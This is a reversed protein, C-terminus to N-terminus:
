HGAARVSLASHRGARPRAHAIKGDVKERRKRVDDEPTIRFLEQALRDGASIRVGQRALGLLSGVGPMGGACDGQVRFVAAVQWRGARGDCRRNSWPGRQRIGRARMEGTGGRPGRVEDLGAAGRAAAPNAVTGPRRSRFCQGARQRRQGADAWAVQVSTARWSKETDERHRDIRDARAGADTGRARRIGSRFTSPMRTPPGSRVCWWRALTSGSGRSSRRRGPQATARM